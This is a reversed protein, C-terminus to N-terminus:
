AAQLLDKLVSFMARENTCLDPNNVWQEYDRGTAWAFVAAKAKLGEVTTARLELMRDCVGSIEAHWAAGDSLWDDFADEFQALHRLRKELSLLEGDASPPEAIAATIAPLALAGAFLARRTNSQTAAQTM